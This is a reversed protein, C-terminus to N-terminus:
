GARGEKERWNGRSRSKRKCKGLEEEKGVEQGEEKGM